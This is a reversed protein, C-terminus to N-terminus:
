AKVRRPIWDAVIWSELFQELAIRLASLLGQVVLQQRKGFINKYQKRLPCKSEARVVMSLSDRHKEDPRTSTGSYPIGYLPVSDPRRETHSQGGIAINIISLPM